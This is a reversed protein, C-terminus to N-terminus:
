SNLLLKLVMDVAEPVYDTSGQAGSKEAEARHEPRSGDSSFIVFPINSGNDRIQKLLVYGERPGEKRGM